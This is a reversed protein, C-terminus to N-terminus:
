RTESESHGSPTDCNSTGAQSHRDPTDYNTTGTGFVHRWFGSGTGVLQL